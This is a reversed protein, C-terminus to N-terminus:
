RFIHYFRRIFKGRKTDAPFLKKIKVKLKEKFPIKRTKYMFLEQLMLEYFLSARAYKWFLDAFEVDNAYVPQLHWAFHVIYPNKCANLYNQYHIVPAPSVINKSNSPPSPMVNWACDLFYVRGQALINLIDQDQNQYKTRLGEEFLAKASTVKRLEEVNFILVGANFYNYPEKLKLVKENYEKNWARCNYAMAVSDRVAGLLNSGLNIDYLQAIDTNVILDCDLYIIEKFNRLFDLILFRLYTSKKVHDREYFNDEVYKSTSLFRLSCNLKNEVTKIFLKKNSSSIHNDFIIIDYFNKDDINQILSSLAVGLHKAYNNDSAFCIGIKNKNLPNLYPNVSNEFFVVQLYKIKVNPNVKKLNEIYINFLREALFGITRTEYASAFTYDKWKHVRELIPFLWQCYDLFFSKKMIFTNFCLVSKIKLTKKVIPDYEPHLEHLVKIAYDLDKINHQSGHKYDDYLNKVMNRAPLVIDYNEIIKKMNDENINMNQLVDDTINECNVQNGSNLNKNFNFYRRYHFFGYYECDINKWAWYQTTLESYYPNLTSINDGTNDQLMDYKVKSLEAGVQIPQLYKNSPVYFNKHCSVFINIDQNLAKM